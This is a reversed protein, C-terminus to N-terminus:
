LHEQAAAEQEMYQVVVLRGAMVLLAMILIAQRAQVVVGNPM